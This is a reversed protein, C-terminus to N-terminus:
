RLQTGVLCQSFGDSGTGATRYNTTAVEAFGSPSNGIFWTYQVWVQYYGRPLSFFQYGTDASPLISLISGFPSWVEAYRVHHIWFPGGYSWAGTYLNRFWFKTQIWQDDSGQAAAAIGMVTVTTSLQDCTAQAPYYTGYSGTAAASAPSAALALAATAALVITILTAALTKKM